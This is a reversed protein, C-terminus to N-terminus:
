LHVRAKSTLKQLFNIQLLNYKKECQSLLYFPGTHPPYFQLVIWTHALTLFLLKNMRNTSSM